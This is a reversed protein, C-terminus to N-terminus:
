RKMLVPSSKLIEMCLSFQLMRATEHSGFEPLQDTQIWLLHPEVAVALKVTGPQAGEKLLLPIATGERHSDRAPDFDGPARDLRPRALPRHPFRVTMNAGAELFAAVVAVGLGGSAGTILVNRNEFETM